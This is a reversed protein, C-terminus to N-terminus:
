MDTVRIHNYSLGIRQLEIWCYAHIRSFNLGVIWIFFEFHELAFGQVRLASFM